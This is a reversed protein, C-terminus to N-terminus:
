ARPSERLDLRMATASAPCAGAWESSARLAAPATARDVHVFGFRPWYAAATQTLLDLADLEAEHAWAVRDETLAAGVGRGRWDDRVAASRLLGVRTAGAAYVEAYVEIGAVGVATGEPAVAVAYQPGFQSALDNVTLGAGVLLAEVATLDTAVAPRVRYAREAPLVRTSTPDARM